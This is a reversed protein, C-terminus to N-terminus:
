QQREKKKDSPTQVPLGTKETIYAAFDDPSGEIFDAIPLPLIHVKDVYLVYAGRWRYIAEVADYRYAAEASGSMVRIGDDDVTTIQDQAYKESNRQMRRAAFRRRFAFLVLAIVGVLLSLLFTGSVGSLVFMVVADVIMVIGMVLLVINAARSVKTDTDKGVKFHLAVLDELLRRELKPKVVFKVDEM